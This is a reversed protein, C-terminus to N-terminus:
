AAVKQMVPMLKWGHPVISCLVSRKGNTILNLHREHALQSIALLEADNPITEFQITNM